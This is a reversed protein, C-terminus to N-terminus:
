DLTVDISSQNITQLQLQMPNNNNVPMVYFYEYRTVTLADFCERAELHYLVNATHSPSTTTPNYLVYVTVTVVVHRDM